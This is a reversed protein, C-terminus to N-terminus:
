DNSGEKLKILRVIMSKVIGGAVIPSLGELTKELESIIYELEGEDRKEPIESTMGLERRVYWLAKLLDQDRNNKRGARLIYKVANGLSFSLKFGEIVDIAEIGSESQYHDPHNVNEKKSM